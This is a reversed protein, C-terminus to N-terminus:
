SPSSQITLPVLCKMLWALMASKTMTKMAVPSSSVDRPGFFFIVQKRGKLHSLSKAVSGLTRSMATVRSADFMRQDKQGM